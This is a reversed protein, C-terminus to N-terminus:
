GGHRAVLLFSASARAILVDASWLSCEAQATRGGVHLAKAVAKVHGGGAKQIFSINFSTTVGYWGKELQSLVAAGCLTDAITCLVGGHLIGATNLHQRELKLDGSAEGNEMSLNELGVFGSFSGDLMTMVKGKNGKM